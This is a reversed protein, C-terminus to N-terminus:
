YSYYFYKINSNLSIEKTIIYNNIPIKTDTTTLLLAESSLILLEELIMM